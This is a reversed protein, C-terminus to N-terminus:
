GKVSFTFTREATNQAASAVVKVFRYGDIFAMDDCGVAFNGTGATITIANGDADKIAQFTGGSAPAAEFTINASDIAPIFLGTVAFGELDIQASTTETQAIVGTTTGYQRGKCHTTTVTM